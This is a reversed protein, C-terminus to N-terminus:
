RWPNATTSPPRREVRAGASRGDYPDLGALALGLLAALLLSSTAPTAGALLIMAPGIARRPASTLQLGLGAVALGLVLPVLLLPVAATLGLTWILLMGSTTPARVLAVLTIAAALGGSLLWRNRGTSRWAAALWALGLIGAGLVYFAQGGALVVLAARPLDFGLPNSLSAAVAAAGDGLVSSPAGSGLDTSRSLGSAAELARGLGAAALGGALLALGVIELRDRGRLVAPLFALAAFAIAAGIGVVLAPTTPVALLVLGVGAVAMTAALGIRWALGRRGPLPPQRRDFGLSSGVLLGLIVLGLLAVVNEVVAGGRALPGVVAAALDSKPVFVALRLLFRTVVLDVALAAVLWVAASPLVAAAGATATGALRAPVVARAAAIRDIPRRATM